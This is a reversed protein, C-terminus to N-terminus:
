AGIVVNCSECFTEYVQDFYNRSIICRKDNDGRFSAEWRASKGIRNIESCAMLNLARSRHCRVFFESSIEKRFKEISTNASYTRGSRTHISTYHGKAELYLVGSPNLRIELGRSDICIPFEGDGKVFNQYQIASKMRCLSPLVPKLFNTLRELNLPKCMYAANKREFKNALTPVYNKETLYIISIESTEFKGFLESSISLGNLKRNGVGLIILDIENGRLIKKCKSQQMIKFICYRKVSNKIAKCIIEMDEANPEIVLLNLM